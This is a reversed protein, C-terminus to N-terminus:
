GVRIYGEPFRAMIGGIAEGDLASPLTALEDDACGQPRFCQIVFRRVGLIGLSEAMGALDATSLLAPHVTTRVELDVGSDLLMGLSARAREGSGPVGTIRAYDAFPAKMDFGVWDLRPLLGSLRDPYPGGTHLGVRFGLDRVVAIADVLGVQLTPEGGSFVVGDLLGRRRELFALVDRWPIDGARDAPILHPNHCYRCSWPCGQCFITAVLQGPWDCTSLPSLGGIRPEPVVPM